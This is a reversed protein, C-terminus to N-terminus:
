APVLVTEQAALVDSQPEDGKNKLCPANPADALALFTAYGGLM